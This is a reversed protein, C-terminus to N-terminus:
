VRARPYTLYLIVSKAADLVGRLETTCPVEVLKGTKQQRVTITDGNYQTWGMALMDGPRQATHLLIKFGLAIAEGNRAGNCAKLFTDIEDPQWIEQRRTSGELDLGTAPNLTMLGRRIAVDIIRKLVAACHVKGGKSEIADLIDHVKKPTLKPIPKAGLNKSLLTMWREYAYRTSTARTTFKPSQRYINIAWAVTGFVPEQPKSEGRKEADARKNLNDAATLREVEDVPLRRTGHGPRQWYWRSTGDKNPKEIVYRMKLWM